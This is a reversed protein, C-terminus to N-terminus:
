ENDDTADEQIEAECPVDSHYDNYEFDSNDLRFASYYYIGCDLCFYEYLVNGDEDTVIDFGSRNFRHVTM